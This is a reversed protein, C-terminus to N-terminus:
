QHLAQPEDVDGPFYRDVRIWHLERGLLVQERGVTPTNNEAVCAVTCASCGICPSLDIVMGWQQGQYVVDSVTQLPQAPRSPPTNPELESKEIDGERAFKGGEKAYESATGERFLPRGFLGLTRKKKDSEGSMQAFTEPHFPDVPVSFHDQTSCLQVSN